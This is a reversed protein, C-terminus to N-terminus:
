TPTGSSSGARRGLPRRCGRVRDAATLTDFHRADIGPMRHRALVACRETTSPSLLQTDSACESATGALAIVGPRPNMYLPQM